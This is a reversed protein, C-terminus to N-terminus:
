KKKFVIQESHKKVVLNFFERLTEYEEPLYYSRKLKLRSRLSINGNSESLRYEFFGDDEENLKVMIQKPMEDIVYGPPIALQLLYIQDTTYPMEVPYFREASKFPNEKVAETLMPNFYLIDENNTKLNFKYKIALPDDYRDLSDIEADAIDADGSFSKKIDDILQEKGKEKIRDRLSVSEYYGPTQQMSGSFNGKDDNIVFVTTMRREFLSDSLLEVPTATSNIVRAHGNYCDYNLKGFGLRSRSADLYVDKGDINALAIVYNFRDLLPYMAFVYGNSKTSLMVPDASINAKRLMATLLLNIEAENGNRNKLVNKLTQELYKRNRNTCTINSQLYTFINKAKEADTTANKLADKMVDNLWSNDRSLSQGFDEDKLLDACAQPWSGMINKPTFPYRVEAMQFQIKAIHNDITSTYSEVKLSPIDKMVWRFDTVGASFTSRDSATAGRSDSVSFHATRNKQDKIFYPHYGQSLTVYYYFEPMTVVYESWLRPYQGQFEWPQLNFIFDSKLKYEFEIISGEKINPFTFKKIVVNKSLKDKFVASKTELKTEVVKGNELNYTVAKLNSLEEEMDGQTYIPITVDGVGYGNKNMIRARRYNKFELSFGGKGNDIMMTSGIDAIVIADASSDISYATPAFDEATVKGFKAKSKDQSLAPLSIALMIGTVFLIHKM